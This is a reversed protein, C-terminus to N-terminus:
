ATRPVVTTRWSEAKQLARTGGSPIRYHRYAPCKIKTSFITIEGSDADIIQNIIRILTTKGAGNSDLLGYISEPITISVDDLARHQTYQKTVNKAALAEM